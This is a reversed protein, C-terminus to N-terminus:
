ANLRIFIGTTDIHCNGRVNLRIGCRDRNERGSGRHRGMARSAEDLRRPPVRHRRARWRARRRRGRALLQGRGGLHQRAPLVGFADSLHCISSAFLGRSVCWPASSTARTKSSSRSRGWGRAQCRARCGSSRARRARTPTWRPCRTPWRRATRPPPRACCSLQRLQGEMVYLSSLSLSSVCVRRTTSPTRRRILRRGSNCMSCVPTTIHCRARPPHLWARRAKLANPATAGLVIRELLFALACADARCARTLGSVSLLVSARCRMWRLAVCLRRGAPRSPARASSSRTTLPPSSAVFRLPAHLSTAHSTHARYPAWAGADSVMDRLAPNGAYRAVLPPVRVLSHAQTDGAVGCSPWRAGAAWGDLFRKSLSNLRGSYAKYAAVSAEAYAAPNLKGEAALSNILVLAEHGYPSLEGVPYTYFM